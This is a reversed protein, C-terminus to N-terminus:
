LFDDSTRAVSACLDRQGGTMLVRLNTMAAGVEQGAEDETAQM